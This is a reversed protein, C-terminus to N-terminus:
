PVVPFPLSEPSLAPAHEGVVFRVARPRVEFTAQRAHTTEGDISFPIPETGQVVARRSRVIKIREDVQEEGFWFDLGAGIMSLTPMVPVLVVDFLGDDLVAQPAAPFGGGAYRGNAILLGYAELQVTDDDLEVIVEYHRKDVLRSLGTMWYALTGWRTKDEAAIDHAAMGSLAGNALNIFHSPSGDTDELTFQGIDVAMARGDVAQRWAIDLADTEIGLSRAFDNGTGLPLIALEVHSFEDVLVGAALSVTGDGGAAIIRECGDGAAQCIAKVVDSAKDFEAIRFSCGAALERVIEGSAAASGSNRNIIVCSKMISRHPFQLVLLHADCYYANRAGCNWRAILNLM